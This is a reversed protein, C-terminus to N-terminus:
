RISSRPTQAEDDQLDLIPRFPLHIRRVVVRGSSRKLMSVSALPDLECPVMQQSIYFYMTRVNIM